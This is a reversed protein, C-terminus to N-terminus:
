EGKNIVMGECVLFVMLVLLFLVTCLVFLWRKKNKTKMELISLGISFLLCLFQITHLPILVWMLEQPNDKLPFSLFFCLASLLIGSLSLLLAHMGDKARPDKPVRNGQEM